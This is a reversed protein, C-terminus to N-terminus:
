TFAATQRLSSMTIRTSFKNVILASHYLCVDACMINTIIQAFFVLIHLSFLFFFSTIKEKSIHLTAPRMRYHRLLTLVVDMWGNHIHKTTTTTSVEGQNRHKIIYRRRYIQLNTKNIESVNSSIKWFLKIADNM